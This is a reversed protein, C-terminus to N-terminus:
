QKAPAEYLINEIRSAFQEYPHDNAVKYGENIDHLSKPYANSYRIGLLKGDVNAYIYENIDPNRRQLGDDSVLKVKTFGTREMWAEMEEPHKREWIHAKEHLLVTALKEISTTGIIKDTIFIIDYRTHPLGDLYYPHITKAFQWDIVELQKSFVEDKLNKKIALDALGSAIRLKEMEDPTFDTAASQWKDFLDRQSFVGNAELNIRNLSKGFGDFDNQFFHKVQAGTLFVPQSAYSEENKKKMALFLIGAFVLLGFLIFCVTRIVTSSKTLELDDEM